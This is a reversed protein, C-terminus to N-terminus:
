ILGLFFPSQLPRIFFLAIIICIIKFVDPPELGLGFMKFVTSRREPDAPEDAADTLKEPEHQLKCSKRAVDKGSTNRDYQYKQATHQGPEAYVVAYAPIRACARYHWYRSKRVRHSRRRYFEFGFAPYIAHRCFHKGHCACYDNEADNRASQHANYVIKQSM